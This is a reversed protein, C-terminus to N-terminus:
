LTSEIWKRKFRNVDVTRKTVLYPMHSSDTVDNCFSLIKVEKRSKDCGHNSSQQDNHERDSEEHCFSNRPSDLFTMNDQFRLKLSSQRRKTQLDTTNTQKDLAIDHNGDEQKDISNDHNSDDFYDDGLNNNQAAINRLYATLDFSSGRKPNAVPSGFPTGWPTDGRRLPNYENSVEWSGRSGSTTSCGRIKLRPAFCPCLCCLLLKFEKRFQPNRAGYIYPNLASCLFAMWYSAKGLSMVHRHSTLSPYSILIIVYTFYPTWCGFFLIVLILVTIAVKRHTAFSNVSTTSTLSVRSIRRASQKASHFIKSYVYGMIGLPVFYGIVSM